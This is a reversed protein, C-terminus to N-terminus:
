YPVSLTKAMHRYLKRWSNRIDTPNVIPESTQNAASALLLVAHRLEHIPPKTPSPIPQAITATIVLLKRLTVAVGASCGGAGATGAAFGAAAFG